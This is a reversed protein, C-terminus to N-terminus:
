QRLALSSTIGELLARTAELEHDTGQYLVLATFDDSELARLTATNVLELCVFEVDLGEAATGFLQGTAVSVDVDDYEEEFAAAAARLVDGSPTGPQFLSLCWFSTESSSVTITRCDDTEGQDIEWDEPYLFRIGNECYEAM